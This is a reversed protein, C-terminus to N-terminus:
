IFCLNIIQPKGEDVLNAKQGKPSQDLDQAITMYQLDGDAGEDGGEPVLTYNNDSLDIRFFAVIFKTFKILYFAICCM